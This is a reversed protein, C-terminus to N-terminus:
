KKDQVHQMNLVKLCFLLKSAKETGLRNRQDNHIWGFSSFMRELPATTSGCSHLAIIQSKLEEPINVLQWWDCPKMCNAAEFYPKLFPPSKSRFQAIVAILDPSLEAGFELGQTEDDADLITQGLYRPDLLFALFHAPTLCMSRRKVVHAQKETTLKGHLQTTLEHWIVVADSLGVSQRQMKDLAIAIPSLIECYDEVNRKLGINTITNYIDNSIEARHEEAIAMITAWNGLYSKLCDLVSNWRVETPLILRTGSKERLWANPLHRNRFYKVVNVVKDVVNNIKLDKALLNLMHAGCGFMLVDKFDNQDEQLNARLKKVNGTNDTVFGCVKFKFKEVGKKIADKAISELYEATHSNDKTDVCDILYSEGSATTAAMCVLPENHINSWGDLSLTVEKGSLLAKAKEECNNHVNELLENALRHRDPPTYSPRLAKVLEKFAKHEVRQFPTNTAYFFNAVAEDLKEKESKSTSCVFSTMELTRKRDNESSTGQQNQSCEAYHTELRGALGQMGRGCQKCIAWYGVNGEKTTRRFHDWIPKPHRGPAM